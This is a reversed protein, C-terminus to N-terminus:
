LEPGVTYFAAPDAQNRYSTAIWSPSRSVRSLRVEDLQGNFARDGAGRNGLRAIGAADSAVAGTPVNVESRAAPAGNLYITPDNATSGQDYVLAVHTWANLAVSGAATNWGGIGDGATVVHTFLIGGSVNENDVSLCWGKTEGTSTDGKELIRGKSAEGWGAARFWAEVTGGGTFVDDISAASGLSVSDNLGDFRRGEGIKGGAAITGNNTGTNANATADTLDRLHWVAGFGASWVAAVAEQSTTISPDGYRIFLQSTATLAPVRVWAILTGTDSRYAEIEHALRVAGAADAFFGIDFGSPSAVDGGASTSRLWSETLSVLLPFAVHPGGAVQADTIDILRTRPAPSMGDGPMGDTADMGPPGDGGPDADTGPAGRPAGFGCGLVLVCSAAMWRM